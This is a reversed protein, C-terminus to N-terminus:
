VNDGSCSWLSVVNLIVLDLHKNRSQKQSLQTYICHKCMKKDTYDFIFEKKETSYQFYVCHLQLKLEM